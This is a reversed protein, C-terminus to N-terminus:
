MPAVNWSPDREDGLIQQVMLARAIEDDRRFSAYRGCM